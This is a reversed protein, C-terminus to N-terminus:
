KRGRGTIAALLGRKKKTPSEPPPKDKNSNAKNQLEAMLGGMPPRAPPGDDAEDKPKKKGLEALLGGMPPRAAPPASSDSSVTSETKPAKQIAAMLGVGMHGLSPGGSSSDHITSAPAPAPASYGGYEMEDEQKRREIDEMSLLNSKAVAEHMYVAYDPFGFDDSYDTALDAKVPCQNGLWPCGGGSPDNRKAYPHNGPPGYQQVHKDFKELDEKFKGKLSAHWMWKREAMKDSASLQWKPAVTKLHEHL